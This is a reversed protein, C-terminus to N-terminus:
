DQDGYVMKDLGNKTVINKNELGKQDGYVMKDLGTQDLKIPSMKTMICWKIWALVGQIVHHIM